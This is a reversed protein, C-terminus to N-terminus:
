WVGPILRKSRAAYARYEDGFRDLMLREEPVIRFVVILFLAVFYSPAVIWNPVVLWQGAAFLLLATYMPHRLHSYVGHTVLTHQERVELTISWNTGLDAHSRQFLWLGLAYCALGVSFPALRLEFEAFAFVRSFAWVLPVFFSLMALSLLVNEVAGRASRAVKMSRSRQGHPARIAILVISALLVACKAFWPNM